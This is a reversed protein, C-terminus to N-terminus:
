AAGVVLDFLVLRSPAGAGNPAIEPFHAVGLRRPRPEARNQSDPEAAEVHPRIRKANREEAGHAMAFRIEGREFWSGLTRGDGIGLRVPLERKVTKGRHKEGVGIMLLILRYM